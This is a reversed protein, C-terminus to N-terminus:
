PWISCTTKPPGECKKRARRISESVMRYIRQLLAKTYKKANEYSSERLISATQRTAGSGQRIPNVAPHCKVISQLTFYYTQVVQWTETICPCLSPSILPLSRSDMAHRPLLLWVQFETRFLSIPMDRPFGRKHHFLLQSGELIGFCRAKLVM